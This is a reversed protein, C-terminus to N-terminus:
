IGQLLEGLSEEIVRLGVCTVRVVDNNRRKIADASMGDRFRPM